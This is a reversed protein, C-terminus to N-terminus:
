RVPWPNVRGLGFGRADGPVAAGAFRNHPPSHALAVIVLHQANRAVGRGVFQLLGIAAQRHLVVRVAIWVVLIRFGFELFGLLGVFDQGIRSPPSDVIPVAM